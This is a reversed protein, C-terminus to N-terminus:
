TILFKSDSIQLIIVDIFEPIIATIQLYFIIM